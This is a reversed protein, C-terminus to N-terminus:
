KKCLEKVGKKCLYECDADLVNKCYANIGEETQKNTYKIPCKKDPTGLCYDEEGPNPNYRTNQLFINMPDQTSVGCFLDTGDCRQCMSREDCSYGLACDRDSDCEVCRYDECSTEDRGPLCNKCKRTCEKEFPNGFCEPDDMGGEIEVTRWLTIVPEPIKKNERGVQSGFPDFVRSDECYMGESACDFILIDFRFLQEKPVIFSYSKTHKKDSSVSLERYGWNGTIYGFGTEDINDNEVIIFKKTEGGVVSIDLDFSFEELREYTNKSSPSLKAKIPSEMLQKPQVEFTNVRELIPDVEGKGEISDDFLCQNKTRTECDYVSVKYAHKGPAYTLVTHSYEIPTDKSLTQVTSTAGKRMSTDVVIKVNKLPEENKIKINVKSEKFLEIDELGTIEISGEDSKEQIIEPEELNIGTDVIEPVEQLDSTTEGKSIYFYVGFIFGILILILFSYKLIKKVM